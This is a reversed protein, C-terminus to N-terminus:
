LNKLSLSANFFNFIKISTNLKSNFSKLILKKIMKEFYCQFIILREVTLTSSSKNDSTINSHIQLIM